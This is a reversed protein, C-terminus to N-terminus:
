GRFLGLGAVIRPRQAWVLLTMYIVLAIIGYFILQWIGHIPAMATVTWASLGVLAACIWVPLVTKLVNFPAERQAARYLLINSLQVFLNAIAYGPLGYLMLLPIGVAWNGLMWIISFKFNVKSLGVADLLSMAPTTTAVFLNAVWFWYFLPLAALWQEGFVNQTIQKSFVLTTIALPAAIANTLWVVGEVLQGLANRDAQMRAFVPLYLRQLVFLAMVPYAAFMGAWNVYGVSTAGLWVGIIIPTVSDKVLSVFKVGQFHLGFTLRGSVKSWDWAWRQRWGALVNALAAGVIVRFLLALAFSWVGYGSWALAVASINFVFTQSVDVIAILKFALRRELLVMPVTLFASVWLALALVRFANVTEDALGYAANLLPAILLFIGSVGTVLVLQVSFVAACDTDQPESDERILSAGLGADGFAILFALFFNFIAFLGFEAPTLIRALLISGGINLGQMLVQRLILFLGSKAMKKKLQRTKDTSM